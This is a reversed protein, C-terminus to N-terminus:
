VGLERIMALKKALSLKKIQAERRLADGHTFGREIRAVSKPPHARTYHGGKGAKHEQFRRPVDTTVGTYFTGDQCKLIYVFYNKKLRALAM